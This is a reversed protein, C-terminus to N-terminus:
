RYVFETTQARNIRGLIKLQPGKPDPKGTGEVDMMMVVQSRVIPMTEDIPFDGQYQIVAAGILRDIGDSAPLEMNKLDLDVKVKYTSIDGMTSIGILRASGTIDDDGIQFAGGSSFDKIAKRTNIPWFGGIYQPEKTGFNEDADKTFDGLIEQLGALAAGDTEGEVVTLTAHADGDKKSRLVTTGPAILEITDNGHFELFKFIEYRVETREGLTVIEADALLFMKLSSDQDIVPVGGATMSMSQRSQYWSSVAFQDGVARPRDLKLRYPQADAGSFAALLLLLAVPLITYRM